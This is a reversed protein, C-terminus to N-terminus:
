RGGDPMPWRMSTKASGCSRTGDTLAHATRSLTRRRGHFRTAKISAQATTRSVTHTHRGHSLISQRRSHATRSPTRQGRPPSRAHAHWGRSATHMCLALSNATKRADLKATKRSSNTADPLLTLLARAIAQRRPTAHGYQGVRGQLGVRAYTATAGRPTCMVCKWVTIFYQVSYLGEAKNILNM